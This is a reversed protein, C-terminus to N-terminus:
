ALFQVIFGSLKNLVASGLDDTEHCLLVNSQCLFVSDVALNKDDYFFIFIKGKAEFLYSKIFFFTWFVFLLISIPLMQSKM